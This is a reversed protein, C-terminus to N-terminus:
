ADDATELVIKRVELLSFEGADTALMRQGLGVHLDEAAERWETKRSLRLADDDSDETGAYRTPILGVAQGGNAWVFQAPAWVFDRLDAPPELRIERIRHFPIWYYRGNVIAELVPGLRPDADAIWAFPQGGAATGAGGSGDGDPASDPMAAGTWLTGATAPANEFAAERLAAAEGWKGEAGLRFSETLRALWDEPEGFIMPGRAGAFVRARLLESRLAERYTQVMPIAKADMQGSVELQTAAREWRGVLCLLQFLFVRKKADGADSRIEAQLRDLSEQLRGAKLSELAVDSM